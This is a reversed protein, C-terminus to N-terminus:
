FAKGSQEAQLKKKSEEVIIKNAFRTNPDVRVRIRKTNQLKNLKETQTALKVIKLAEKGITTQHLPTGLMHAEYACLRPKAHPWVKIYSFAAQNMLAANSKQIVSGTSLAAKVFVIRNNCVGMAIGTEDMNWINCPRVNYRIQLSRFRNQFAIVVDRTLAHIRLTEIKLGLKSKVEPHRRLFRTIWRNRLIDNDKYSTSNLKVM